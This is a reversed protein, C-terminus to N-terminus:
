FTRGFNREQSIPKAGPMDMRPTADLAQKAKQLIGLLREYEPDDKSKFLAKRDDALGDASEALNNILIPSWEPHTLNIQGRPSFKNSGGIVIRAKPMGLHDWFANYEAIWPEVQILRGGDGQSAFVGGKGPRTRAYADRGGTTHPRTMEWTGYYPVNADIWAYICRRSQDDMDVDGHKAEILKTLKSVWSGTSLAPFNGNPGRNIYYYDVYGPFVFSEYAMNYFRTKDGSLNIGGDPKPGDHCEVCYRDLIPQVQKVFDVPGAGWPPPTISAPRSETRLSIYHTPPSSARHEHCGVCSAFEGTTIQAVSGMRQLEKGDKDLAIFFLESNSPAKFYASGEEDVSVTGYNCKVYYSGQGVIPYHDNFRLGETNYKKPRQSMVRLAAVQGRRVGQELLGQYVDQVYYVGDGSEQPCDGPIARPLPRPTLSVPSFCSADTKHVPCTDGTNHNLIYLHHHRPDDGGFSVLSLDETFPFPDAFAREYLTDAERTGVGTARWNDGTALDKELPTVHTVKWMSDYSELGRSHDVIALDGIPIRHHAAWVVLVKQTSPIERGGYVANPIRFTNGHYLKLQRGNPNITWLGEWAFINKDNYEWRTCLISGDQLVSPTLTCLTTYDIRRLNSGDAAIAYLACALFNQCLSYSEVRSSSFIIRGDPYYVPSVDHYPGSTLQRLGTGDVNIEWIHFPDDNTVKYSFVLKRGDYSPNMNFIFGKETEFVVREGDGPTAPDYVCIAAGVGTRQSFMVANTGRMGYAARKIFAIPPCAGIMQRATEPDAKKREGTNPTAIVDAILLAVSAIAIATCRFAYAQPM